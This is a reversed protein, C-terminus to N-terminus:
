HLENLSFIVAERVTNKWYEHFVFSTAAIVENDVSGVNAMGEFVLAWHGNDNNLLAPCWGEEALLDLTKELSIELSEYDKLIEKIAM